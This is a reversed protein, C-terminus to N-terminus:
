NGDYEDDHYSPMTNLLIKKGLLIYLVRLM